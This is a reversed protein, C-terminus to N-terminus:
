TDPAFSTIFALNWAQSLWFPNNCIANAVAQPAFLSHPHFIQSVVYILSDCVITDSSVVSNSLSVLFYEGLTMIHADLHEKGLFKKNNDRLCTLDRM